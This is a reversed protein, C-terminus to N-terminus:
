SIHTIQLLLAGIVGGPRVLKMLRDFYLQYNPKDADIFAFDYSGVEGETEILRDLSEVAPAVRLDVKHAVGAQEWYKRAYNTFEESIDLAVLKGDLLIVREHIINALGM